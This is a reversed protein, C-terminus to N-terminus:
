ILFIRVLQAQLPGMLLLEWDAYKKWYGFCLPFKSLFHDFVTHLNSVDQESSGKGLGGKAGEALRILSEWASFDHPQQIVQAWTKEWDDNPKETATM